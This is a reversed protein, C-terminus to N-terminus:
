LRGTAGAPAGAVFTKRGSLALTPEATKFANVSATASLSSRALYWGNTQALGANGKNRNFREIRSHSLRRPSTRGKSIYPELRKCTHLRIKQDETM